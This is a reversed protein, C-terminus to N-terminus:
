STPTVGADKKQTAEDVKPAPDSLDIIERFLFEASEEDLDEIGEKLDVEFTWSTVGASLIHAREYVQYRVDPNDEASVVPKEGKDKSADRFASIMEPGMKATLQAAAIQRAERAKDLSRASLKRITVQGTTEGDTMDVVKTVNKTFM